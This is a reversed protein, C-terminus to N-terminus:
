TSAPPRCGPSRTATPSRPMVAVPDMSASSRSPPSRTAPLHQCSSPLSGEQYTNGDAHPPDRQAARPSLIGVRSWRQSRPLPTGTRLRLLAESSCCPPVRRLSRSRRGAIHRTRATPAVYEGPEVVSASRISQAASHLARRIRQEDTNTVAHVEATTRPGSSTPDQGHESPHRTDFRGTRPDPGRLLPPRHGCPRPYSPAPGCGLDGSGRAADRGASSHHEPLPAGSDRAASPESIPQGRRHTM